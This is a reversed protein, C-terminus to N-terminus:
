VFNLNDSSIINVSMINAMLVASAEGEVTVTVRVAALMLDSFDADVVQARDELCEM